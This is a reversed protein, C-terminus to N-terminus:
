TDNFDVYAQPIPYNYEPNKIKDKGYNTLSMYPLLM